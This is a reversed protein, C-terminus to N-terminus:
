QKSSRMRAWCWIKALANGTAVARQGARSPPGDSPIPESLGERDDLDALWPYADIL